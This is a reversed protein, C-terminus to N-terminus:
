HSQAEGAVSEPQVTNGQEFAAGVHDSQPRVGRIRSSGGQAQGLFLVKQQIPHNPEKPATAPVLGM